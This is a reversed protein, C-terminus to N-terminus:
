LEDLPIPKFGKFSSLTYIITMGLQNSMGLDLNLHFILGYLM